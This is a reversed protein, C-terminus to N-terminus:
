RGIITTVAATIVAVLVVSLLTWLIGLLWRNMQITREENKQSHEVQMQYRESIKSLEDTQKQNIDIINQQRTQSEISFLDFKNSLTNHDSKLNIIDAKLKKVEEKLGNIQEQM